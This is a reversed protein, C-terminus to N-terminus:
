IDVNIEHLLFVYCMRAVYFWMWFKSNIVPDLGIGDDVCNSILSVVLKNSLGLTGTQLDDRMM